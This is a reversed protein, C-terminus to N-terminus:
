NGITFTGEVAIAFSPTKGIATYCFIVSKAKTLSPIFVTVADSMLNDSSNMPRDANNDLSCTQDISDIAEYAIECSKNEYSGIFHCSFSHNLPEFEAFFLNNSTDVCGNCINILPRYYKYYNSSLMSLSSTSSPSEDTLVNSAYVAVEVQSPHKYCPLSTLNVLTINCVGDM